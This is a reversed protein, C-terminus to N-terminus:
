SRDVGTAQQFFGTKQAPPIERPTLRLIESNQQWMQNIADRARNYAIMGLDPKGAYLQAQCEALDLLAAEAAGVLGLADTDAILETTFQYAYEYLVTGYLAVATASPIPYFQLRRTSALRFWKLEDGSASPDPVCWAFDQDSLPDLRVKREGWWVERDNVHVCDAALAYDQVEADLNLTGTKMLFHWPGFGVFQHRARNILLNYKLVLAPDGQTEGVLAMIQQRAQLLNM